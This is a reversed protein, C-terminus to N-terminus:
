PSGGTQQEDCRSVQQSDSIIDLKVGDFGAARALRALESSFWTQWKGNPGLEYKLAEDYAYVFNEIREGDDHSANVALNGVLTTQFPIGSVSAIGKIYDPPEEMTYLAVKGFEVSTICLTIKYIASLTATNTIVLQGSELTSTIQKQDTLSYIASSWFRESIDGVTIVVPTTAQITLTYPVSIPDIGIIKVDSAQGVGYTSIERITFEHESRSTKEAEIAARFAREDYLNNILPAPITAIGAAAASTASEQALEIHTTGGAGVNVSITPTVKPPTVSGAYITVAIFGAVLVFIVMLLFLVANRAM